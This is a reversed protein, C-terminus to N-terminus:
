RTFKGNLIQLYQDIYQDIYQCKGECLPRAGRPFQNQM